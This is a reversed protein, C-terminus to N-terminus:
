LGKKQSNGQVLPAAQGSISTIQLCLCQNIGLCLLGTEKERSAVFKITSNMSWLERPFLSPCSRLQVWRHAM